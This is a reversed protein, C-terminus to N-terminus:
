ETLGSPMIAIDKYIISCSDLNGLWEGYHSLRAYGASGSFRSKNKLEPIEKIGRTFSVYGNDLSGWGGPNDLTEDFNKFIGDAGSPDAPYWGYGPMYIEVWHHDLGKEAGPPIWVGSVVRSPVDVSRALCVFLSAYSLSDGKRSQLWLLPDSEPSELDVEMRWLVYDFLLRAKEYPNSERKVVALATKRFESAPLGPADGLWSALMSSNSYNGQIDGPSLDVSVSRLDMRYTSDFVRRDGSKMEEMLLSSGSSEFNREIGALHQGPRDEPVPIQLSLSNGPLAGVHSVTIEQKISVTRPRGLVTQGKRLVEINVPNSFGASTQVYISGSTAADPLFFSVGSDQWSYIHDEPVPLYLDVDPLDIPGRSTSDAINVLIRSNRKLMGMKDGKLIILDGPYFSRNNVGSLYPKGPLFAGSALGPVRESLIYLAGKSRGGTTEVSVLGSSKVPPVRVHVSDESWSEIFSATLSVNDLFVKSKGRTVGFNKGKLIMLDGPSVRSPEVSLIVPQTRSVTMSVSFLLFLGAFLVGPVIHYLILDKKMFM